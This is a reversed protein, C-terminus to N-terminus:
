VRWMGWIPAHKQFHFIWFIPGGFDNEMWVPNEFIMMKYYYDPRNLLSSGLTSLSKSIDFFIKCGGCTGYPPMNKSTFFGFFRVGLTMKCGFVIKLFWWKTTITLDTSSVAAMATYSLWQLTHCICQLVVFQHNGFFFNPHFDVKPNRNKFIKVELFM